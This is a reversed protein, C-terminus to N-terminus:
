VTSALGAARAQMQLAAQRSLRRLVPPTVGGIMPLDARSVGDLEALASATPVGNATLVRAQKATLRAVLRLDDRAELLASALSSWRGTPQSPSPIDPMAAPDFARQAALFRDRTRRYLADFSQVRLVLPTAGLVLGVRDVPAGQLESLMEAYCCLQLLMSPRPQRALKADWVMYRPHRRRQRQLRRRMRQRVVAPREARRFKRSITRVRIRTTPM